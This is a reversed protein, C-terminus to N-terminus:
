TKSSLHLIRSGLYRSYFFAREWVYCFNNYEPVFAKADATGGLKELVIKLVENKDKLKAKNECFGLYISRHNTAV